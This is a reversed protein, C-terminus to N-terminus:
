IKNSSYNYKSLKKAAVVAAKKVKPTKIREKEKAQQEVALLEKAINDEFFEQLSPFGLKSARKEEYDKGCKLKVIREEM